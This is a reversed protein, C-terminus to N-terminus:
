TLDDKAPSNFAIAATVCIHQYCTPVITLRLQNIVTPGRPFTLIREAVAPRKTM